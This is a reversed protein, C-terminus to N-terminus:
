QRRMCKASSSDVAVGHHITSAVAHMFLVCALWVAVNRVARMTAPSAGRGALRWSWGWDVVSRLSHEM